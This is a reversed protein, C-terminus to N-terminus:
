LAAADQSRRAWWQDPENCTGHVAFKNLEALIEARAEGAHEHIGDLHGRDLVREETGILHWSACYPM